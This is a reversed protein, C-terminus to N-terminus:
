FLFAVVIVILILAGISLTVNRGMIKEWHRSRFLEPGSGNWSHPAEIM